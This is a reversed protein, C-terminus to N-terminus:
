ALYLMDTKGSRYATIHLCAVALLMLSCSFGMVRFMVEASYAQYLIGGCIFGIARGFNLAGQKFGQASPAPFGVENALKGTLTGLNGIPLAFGIAHLPQLAVIWWAKTVWYGYALLWFAYAFSSVYLIGHVGFRKGLDGAYFFMPIECINLVLASIGLVWLTAHLSEVAWISMFLVSSSGFLAGMLAVSLLFPPVVPYLMFTWFTDLDRPTPAAGGKALTDDAHALSLFWWLVLATFPAVAAYVYWLAGLHSSSPIVCVISTLIGWGLCGWLRQSGFNFSRRKCIRFVGADSLPQVGGVLINSFGLILGSKFFAGTELTTMILAVGSGGLHSVAAVVGHSDLADAIVPITSSGLWQALMMITFVVSCEIISLGINVSLYLAIYTYFVGQQGFRLFYMLKAGLGLKLDNRENSKDASRPSLTDNTSGYTSGSNGAKLGELEPVGDAKM